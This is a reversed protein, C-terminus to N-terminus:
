ITTPLNSSATKMRWHYKNELCTAIIKSKRDPFKTTSDNIVNDEVPGCPDCCQRPNVWRYRGTTTINWHPPPLKGSGRETAQCLGLVPNWVGRGSWSEVECSRHHYASIAYTTTFGVVICDRGRRGRKNEPDPKRSIPQPNQKRFALL